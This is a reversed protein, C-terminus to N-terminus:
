FILIMLVLMIENTPQFYEFALNSAKSFHNFFIHIANINNGLARCNLLTQRINFIHKHLMMKRMTNDLLYFTSSRIFSYTFNELNIFKLSFLKLLKNRAIHLFLNISYFPHM